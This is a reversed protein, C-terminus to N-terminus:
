NAKLYLLAYQIGTLGYILGMENESSRKIDEWYESKELHQMAQLLNEKDKFLGQWDDLDLELHWDLLILGAMGNEVYLSKNALGFTNIAGVKVKEKLLHAHSRWDPNAIKNMGYLLNLCNGANQPLLSLVLPSIDRIM